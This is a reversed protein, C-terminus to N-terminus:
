PRIHITRRGLSLGHQWRIKMSTSCMGNTIRQMVFATTQSAENGSPFSRASGIRSDAQVARELTIGRPTILLHIHDPMLVYAHFLFGSRYHEITQLFLDCSADVQFLRRRNYPPSTLFYTGPIAANRSPIAM